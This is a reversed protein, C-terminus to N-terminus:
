RGMVRISAVVIDFESVQAGARVQGALFDVLIDTIRQLLEHSQKPHRFLWSKAKSLTKSGGGEIMYAMLTWPGGVFGFLPVRGELKKRTLTIADYVYKLSTDVDVDKKLRELDAPTKLPEPFHPGKQPVMQVELGMAQPVVLIDSFIISADLLEGYRDIPQLTVECALEPTRCVTFFDNTVRAKRFEPLYRGAQRMIWVPTKEVKEGKIVRLILDNKLPPFEHEVKSKKRSPSPSRM